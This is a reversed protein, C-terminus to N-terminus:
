ALAPREPLPARSGDRNTLPVACPLRPNAGAAELEPGTLILRVGPLRRAADADLRTIRAHAAPSRLVCAHVQGDLRIDDLYRGRGTTFRADEVRRVPQSIGFQTM